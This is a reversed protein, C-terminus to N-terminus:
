QLQKYFGKCLTIVPIVVGIFFNLTAPFWYFCGSDLCPHMAVNFKHCFFILMDRVCCAKDKGTCLLHFALIIKGPAAWEGLGNIIKKAKGNCWPLLAISRHDSVNCESANVAQCWQWLIWISRYKNDRNHIDCLLQQDNVWVTSLSHFFHLLLEKRRMCFLFSWVPINQNLSYIGPKCFNM